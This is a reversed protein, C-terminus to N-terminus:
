RRASIRVATGPFYFALIERATKGEAAMETAGEQCLGVGHGHGRGDFVLQEMACASSMRMAACATGVWRAGLGSACHVRRSPRVRMRESGTFVIRLARHSASRETVRAAVINAPLHWGEVQAIDALKALPVEAHWTALIAGFAILTPM